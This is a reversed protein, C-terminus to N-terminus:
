EGDGAFRYLAFSHLRMRFTYDTEQVAFAPGDTCLFRLTMSDSHGVQGAEYENISNPKLHIESSRETHTLSLCVWVTDIRGRTDLDDAKSFSSPLGMIICCRQDLMFVAWFSLIREGLELGDIPSPLLGGPGTPMNPRWVATTLKHLNCDM